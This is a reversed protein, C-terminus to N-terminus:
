WCKNPIIIKTVNLICAQICSYKRKSLEEICVDIFVAVLATMVGVLLM